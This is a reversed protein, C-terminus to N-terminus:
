TTVEECLSEEVVCAYDTLRFEDAIERIRARIAMKYADTSATKPKAHGQQFATLHTGPKSAGAAGKAARM